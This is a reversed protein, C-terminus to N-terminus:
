VDRGCNSCFVFDHPISGRCFPCFQGKIRGPPRQGDVFRRSDSRTDGLDWALRDVAQENGTIDVGSMLNKGRTSCSGCGTVVGMGHLALRYPLPKTSHM